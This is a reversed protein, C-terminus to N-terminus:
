TRRSSAASRTTPRAARRVWDRDPGITREVLRLAAFLSFRYPERRLQELAEIHDPANRDPSAM